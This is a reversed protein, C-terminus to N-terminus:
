SGNDLNVQTQPLWYFLIYMTSYLLDGVYLASALRKM